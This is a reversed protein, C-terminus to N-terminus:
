ICDEILRERNILDAIVNTIQRSEKAVDLDLGDSTATLVSTGFSGLIEKLPMKLLQDVPTEMISVDTGFAKQIGRKFDESIDQLEEAAYDGFLSVFIEEHLDPLARTDKNDRFAQIRKNYDPLSEVKSVMNYYIEPKNRKLFGMMIHAFEHLIDADTAKDTNLYINGEYIFARKRGVDPIIRKFRATLEGRSLPTIEIGYNKSLHETIHVLSSQMDKPPKSEVPINNKSDIRTVRYNFGTESKKAEVIEYVKSKARQIDHIASLAATSEDGKDYQNKLYIFTEVKEPTDLVNDIITGNKKLDNVFERYFKNAKLIRFFSPYTVVKGEKFFINKDSPSITINKDLKIDLVNFRDGPNYKVTSSFVNTTTRKIAYQIDNKNFLKNKVVTDDIYNKAEALSNFSTRPLQLDTTVVRNTVYFKDKYEILNYGRTSLVPTVLEGFYESNVVDYNSTPKLSANRFIIERDGIFEIEYYNDDEVRNNAERVLDEINRYSPNRSLLVNADDISLKDNHISNALASVLADSTKSATIHSSDKVLEFLAPYLDSNAADSMTKFLSDNFYLMIFDSINSKVMPLFKDLKLRERTSEVSLKGLNTITAKIEDLVSQPLKDDKYLQSILRYRLYSIASEKRDRVVCLEKGDKRFLGFKNEYLLRFNTTLVLINYSDLPVGASRLRKLLMINETKTALRELNTNGMPLTSEFASDLVENAPFGSKNITDVLKDLLVPQEKLIDIIQEPSLNDVDPVEVEIQSSTGKIDNVTIIAKCNRM